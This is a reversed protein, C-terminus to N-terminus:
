ESWIHIAHKPIYADYKEGINGCGYNEHLVSIPKTNQSLSHSFVGNGFFLKWQPQLKKSIMM